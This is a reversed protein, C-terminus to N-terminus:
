SKQKELTVLSTQCGAPAQLTSGDGRLDSLSFPRKCVVLHIRESETSEDAEVAGPLFPCQDARRRASAGSHSDPYLLTRQGSESTSFVLVHADQMLEVRFRLFDGAQLKDNQGIAEATDGRKRFIELEVPGKRQLAENDPPHIRQTTRPLAFLLVAGFVLALTGAARLAWATFLFSQKPEPPTSLKQIAALMVQPHFDSYADFGKKSLALRKKCPDCSRMHRKIQATQNEPLEALHLLDIERDSPCDPSRGALKKLVGDNLPGGQEHDEKNFYVGL